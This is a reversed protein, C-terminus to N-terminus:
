PMAFYNKIILILYKQTYDLVEEFEQHSVSIKVGGNLSETWKYKKTGM